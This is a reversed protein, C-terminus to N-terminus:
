KVEEGTIMGTRLYDAVSSQAGITWEADQCFRVRQGHTNTTIVCRGDSSVGYDKGAVMPATYAVTPAPATTPVISGPAYRLPKSPDPQVIAAPIPVAIEATPITAPAPIAIPRAIPAPVAGEQEAQQAPQEQVIPPSESRPANSGVFPTPAVSPAAGEGNWRAMIYPWLLYVVIAALAISGMNITHAIIKSFLSQRPPAARYPAPLPRRRTTRPYSAM